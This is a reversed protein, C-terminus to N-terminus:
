PNLGGCVSIVQATIYSSLDSALFLSVNAIEEASGFRGM